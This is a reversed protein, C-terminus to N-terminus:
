EGEVVRLSEVQRKLRETLIEPCVNSQIGEFLNGVGHYLAKLKADRERKLENIEQSLDIM